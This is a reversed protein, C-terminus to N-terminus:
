FEALRLKYFLKENKRGLKEVLEVSEDDDPGGRV